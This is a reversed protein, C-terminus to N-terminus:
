KMNDIISEFDWAAIGELGEILYSQKTESFINAMLSAKSEIKEKQEQPLDDWWEPAIALNECSSIVMRFLLDGLQKGEHMMTALSRMFDVCSKSSSEHWAFLVGWGSDLPASCFTILDLKQQHDGLNQLNRGMFDFEPYLLGSFAMFPKQKSIFLVYRIKFYSKERLSEDYISKHQKLNVLGFSTGEKTGHLLDKISNEDPVNSLQDEFLKLANEKVFLERCLSRYAYLFVQQDTPLLPYNDITEFLENDHRKCFGLFTSVRNIGCKEYILRGKNAKTTSFKTSPKYVHGDQAISALSQNKQISHANIINNCRHSGDFHLCRGSQSLEKQKALFRSIEFRFSPNQIFPGATTKGDRSWGVYVFAFGEKQAKDFQELGIDRELFLERTVEVPYEAIKEIRWDSKRIFFDAQAYAAQADHELVWCSALAGEVLNHHENSATPIVRFQLYYTKM